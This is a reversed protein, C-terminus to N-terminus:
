RPIGDGTLLTINQESGSLRRTFHKPGSPSFRLHGIHLRSMGLPPLLSFCLKSTLPPSCPLSCSTVLIGWDKVTDNFNFRGNRVSALRGPLPGRADMKLVTSQGDDNAM